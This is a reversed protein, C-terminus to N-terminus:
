IAFGIRRMCFLEGTDDDGVRKGREMCPEHCRVIM